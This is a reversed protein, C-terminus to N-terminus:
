SLQNITARLSEIERVEKRIAKTHYFILERCAEVIRWNGQYKERFGNLTSIWEKDLKIYEKCEQIQGLYCQKLINQEKISEDSELDGV